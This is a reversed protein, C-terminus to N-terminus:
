LAPQFCFGPDPSKSTYSNSFREARVTASNLYFSSSHNHREDTIGLGM